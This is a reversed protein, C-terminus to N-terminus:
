IVEDTYNLSSWRFLPLHLSMEKVGDLVEESGVVLVVSRPLFWDGELLEAFVVGGPARLFDNKSPRYVVDLLDEGERLITLATEEGQEVGDKGAGALAGPAAPM